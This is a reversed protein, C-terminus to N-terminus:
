ESECERDEPRLECLEDIMDALAETLYEDDPDQALASRIERIDKKLQLVYDRDDSMQQQEIYEAFDQAAVHRIDLAIAGGGISGVALVAAAIQPLSIM